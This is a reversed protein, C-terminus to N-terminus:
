DDADFFWTHFLVWKKWQEQTMYNGTGSTLDFRTSISTTLIRIRQYDTQAVEYLSEMTRIQVQKDTNKRGRAEVITRLHKLISEPTFKMARGDRGVGEWGGEDDGDAEPNITVDRSKSKKTPAAVQEVIEEIMFGEKDERYADIDAQYDKNVKRIKQRVANLGKTSLANMKKPSVKQKEVTELMFTELDAVTKVYLKPLKGDNDKLLRPLQRNLKDYEAM